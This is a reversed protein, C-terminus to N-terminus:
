CVSVCMLCVLYYIVFGKKDKLARSAMSSFGLRCFHSLCIDITDVILTNYGHGILTTIRNDTLRNGTFNGIVPKM